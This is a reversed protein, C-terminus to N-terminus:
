AAKPIDVRSLDPPAGAKQYLVKFKNIQKPPLSSVVADLLPGFGTVICPEASPSESHDAGDFVNESADTQVAREFDTRQAGNFIVGALKTGLSDLQQVSQQVLAERQGRAVVFIVGDTLPALVTADVSGFVGGTDILILEFHCRAEGLLREVSAPSVAYNRPAKRGTSLIWLGERAGRAHGRLSGAETAEHLGPLDDLGLGRTICRGDLDGDIVLTRFGATAFSTGLALAINTKGEGAGASTVLYVSTRRERVAGALKICIQHVSRAAARAIESGTRHAKLKPLAAFVPTAGALDALAQLSNRYKPRALSCAVLIAGPCIFGALAGIAAGRGHPNLLPALPVDGRSIVSLRGGVAEESDVVGIRRTVEALEKRVTEEETLLRDMRFRQAGLTAMEKKLSALQTMLSSEEARLAEATKAPSM